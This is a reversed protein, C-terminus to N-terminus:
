ALLHITGILGQSRGDMRASLNATVEAGRHLAAFSQGEYRCTLVADDAEPWGCEIRVLWRQNDAADAVLMTLPGSGFEWPESVTMRLRMPPHKMNWPM